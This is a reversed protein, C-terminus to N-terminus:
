RAITMILRSTSRCKLYRNKKGIKETFHFFRDVLYQRQKDIAPEVDLTVTCRPTICSIEGERRFTEAIM